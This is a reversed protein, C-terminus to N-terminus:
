LERLHGQFYSNELPGGLLETADWSTWELGESIKEKSNGCRKEIVQAIKKQRQDNKWTFRYVIM